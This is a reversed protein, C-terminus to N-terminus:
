HALWEDVWNNNQSELRNKWVSEYHEQIAPNPCRANWGMMVSAWSINDVNLLCGGKYHIDDKFRDDTSFLSIM